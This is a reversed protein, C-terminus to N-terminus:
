KNGERDQLRKLFEEGIQWINGAGLTLVVDKQQAEEMLIPIIDKPNPIYRIDGHGHEQIATALKEAHV